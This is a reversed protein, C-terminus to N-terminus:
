NFEASFILLIYTTLSFSSFHVQARLGQSLLTYVYINVTSVQLSDFQFGILQGWSSIKKCVMLCFIVYSMFITSNNYGKLLVAIIPLLTFLLKRGNRDASLVLRRQATSVAEPYQAYVNLLHANRSLYYHFSVHYLCTSELQSHVLLFKFEAALSYWSPFHCFVYNEPM